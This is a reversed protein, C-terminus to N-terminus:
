HPTCLLMMVLVIMRCENSQSHQAADSWRESVGGGSAPSTQQGPRLKVGRKLKYLRGGDTRQPYKKQYDWPLMSDALVAAGLVPKSCQSIITRVEMPIYQGRLTGVVPYYVGKCVEFVLFALLVLARSQVAALVVMAVSATVRQVLVRLEGCGVMLELQPQALQGQPPM